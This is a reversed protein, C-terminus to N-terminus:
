LSKDLVCDKVLRSELGILKSTLIKHFTFLQFYFRLYIMDTFCSKEEAMMILNEEFAVLNM